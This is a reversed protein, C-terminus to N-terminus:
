KPAPKKIQVHRVGIFCRSEAEKEAEKLVKTLEEGKENDRFLGGREGPMRKFSAYTSSEVFTDYPLKEAMVDIACSCAYLNDVTQGGHKKMCTLVYDVRDLTPFDNAFATVPALLAMALYNRIKM